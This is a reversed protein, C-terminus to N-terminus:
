NLLKLRFIYVKTCLILTDIDYINYIKGFENNISDNDYFCWAPIKNEIASLWDINSKAEM